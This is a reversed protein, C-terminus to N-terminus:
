KMTSWLIQMEILKRKSEEEKEKAIRTYDEDTFGYKDMTNYINKLSDYKEEPLEKMKMYWIGSEVKLM